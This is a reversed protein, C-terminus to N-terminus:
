DESLDSWSRIELEEIDIGPASLKERINRRWELKPNNEIEAKMRKRAETDPPTRKLNM